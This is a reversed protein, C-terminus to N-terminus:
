IEIGNASRSKNAKALSVAFRGGVNMKMIADAVVQKNEVAEVWWRRGNM